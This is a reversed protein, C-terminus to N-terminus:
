PSKTYRDNEIEQEEQPLTDNDNVPDVDTEVGEDESHIIDQILFSLQEILPQAKNKDHGMWYMRLAELPRDKSKYYDGTRSLGDSYGTTMFIRRAGEIDGENFKQNAKRNLAAKDSGEVPSPETVKIFANKDDFKELIKKDMFCGNHVVIIIDGKNM